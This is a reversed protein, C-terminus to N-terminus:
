VRPIEAGPAVRAAGLKDLEAEAAKIKERVANARQDPHREIATFIASLGAEDTFIRVTGCDAKIELLKCSEAPVHDFHQVSVRLVSGDRTSGGSRMEFTLASM